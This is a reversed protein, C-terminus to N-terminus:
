KTGHAERKPRPTERGREPLNVHIPRPVGSKVSALTGSWSFETHLKEVSERGGGWSRFTFVGGVRDGGLSFVGSVRQGVTGLSTM